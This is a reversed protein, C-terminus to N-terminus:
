LNAKRFQEPTLGAHKKFFRFFYANDFYGLESAVQAITLTSHVLLRKAELLVRDQILQATTRGFRRKSTENLQKTTLHLQDAYFKVPKHNKYQEEILKQLAELQSVAGTGATKPGGESHYLRALRMLLIDLYDRIIAETYLEQRILEEQMELLISELQQLQANTLYLFPNQLLSNFFPFSNLKHNPFDILYFSPTFFLIFGDTDSSLQWSHVQGPTLFFVTNPEVPYTKFDITHSGSGHTVFFLIYFDHKHPKQIFAHEQLHQSFPKLYFYHEQQWQANFDQIQYVPLEKEAM